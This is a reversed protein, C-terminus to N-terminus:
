IGDELAKRDERELGKAEVNRRREEEKMVEVENLRM